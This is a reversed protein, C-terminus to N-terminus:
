GEKKNNRQRRVELNWFFEVARRPNELRRPGARVVRGKEKKKDGVLLSVGYVIGGCSSGADAAANAGLAEETLTTRPEPRGSCHSVAVNFLILRTFRGRLLTM